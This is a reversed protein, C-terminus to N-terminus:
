FVYIIILSFTIQSLFEFSVIYLNFYLSYNNKNSTHINENEGLKYFWKILKKKQLFNYLCHSFIFNSWLFIFIFTSNTLNYIAFNNIEPWVGPSAEKRTLISIASNVFILWILTIEKEISYHKSLYSKRWMTKILDVHYKHYKTLSSM